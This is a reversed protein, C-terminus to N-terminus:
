LKSREHKDALIDVFVEESAPTDAHLSVSGVLGDLMKDLRDGPEAVDLLTVRVRHGKLEESRTLIEEWTGEITQSM